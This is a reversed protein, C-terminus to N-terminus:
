IPVNNLIKLEKKNKTAGIIYFINFPLQLLLLLLLLLLTWIPFYMDKSSLYIALFFGAILIIFYIIGLVQLARAKNLNNCNIIGLTYYFLMYISSWIVFTPYTGWLSPEQRSLSLETLQRLVVILILAIIGFSIGRISSTRLFTRGPANTVKEMTSNEM